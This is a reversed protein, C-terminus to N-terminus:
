ISHKLIGKMPRQKRIKCSNGACKRRKCSTSVCDNSNENSYKVFATAVKSIANKTNFLCDVILFIEPKSLAVVPSPANFRHSFIKSSSKEAFVNHLFLQTNIIQQTQELSTIKQLSAKTLVLEAGLAEQSIDM